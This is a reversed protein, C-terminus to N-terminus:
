NKARKDVSISYNLTEMITKAIRQSTVGTTAHNIFESTHIDQIVLNHNKLLEDVKSILIELLDNSDTWELTGVIEDEDWLNLAMEKEEM